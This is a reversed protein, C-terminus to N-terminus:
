RVLNFLFKNVPATYYSKVCFWAFSLKKALERKKRPDMFGTESPLHSALSQNDEAVDDRRLNCMSMASEVEPENEELEFEKEEQIFKEKYSGFSLNSKDFVIFPLNFWPM